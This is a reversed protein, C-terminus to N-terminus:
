ARLRSRWPGGTMHDEHLDPFCWGAFDGEGDAQKEWARDCIAKITDYDRGNTPDHCLCLGSRSEAWAPEECGERSCPHGTTQLESM